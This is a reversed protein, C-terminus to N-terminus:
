GSVLVWGFGVGQAVDLGGFCVGELWTDLAGILLVLLRAKPMAIRLAWFQESARPPSSKSKPLKEFVSLM